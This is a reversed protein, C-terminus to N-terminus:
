LTMIMLDDRLLARSIFGYNRVEVDRLPACAVAANCVPVRVRVGCVPSSWVCWYVVAVCTAGSERASVLVLLSLLPCVEYLM